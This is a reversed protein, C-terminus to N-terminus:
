FPIDDEFSSSKGPAAVSTTAAQSQQTGSGSRSGVFILSNPAPSVDVDLALRTENTDKTNWLRPRLSGHVWMETGKTINSASAVSSGRFTLTFWNAEPEKDRGSYPSNVARVRVTKTTSGDKNTYEKVEADAAARVLLHVYIEGFAKQKRVESM